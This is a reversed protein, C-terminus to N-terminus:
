HQLTGGDATKYHSLSQSHSFYPSNANNQEGVHLVSDKFSDTYVASLFALIDFVRFFLVRRYHLPYCM